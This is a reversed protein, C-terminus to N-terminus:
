SNTKFYVAPGRVGAGWGDDHWGWGSVGCGACEELSIAMAETTLMRWIPNGNADVSDSLQLWVSDNATSNNQARGRIWV